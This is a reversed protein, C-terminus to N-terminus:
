YRVDAAVGQIPLWPKDEQDRVGNKLRRGLPDKGPWHEDALARSVIIGYSATDQPTFVSGKLVPAGLIKFYGPSVSHAMVPYTGDPADSAHDEFTFYAGSWADTPLTPDTMEVQAV